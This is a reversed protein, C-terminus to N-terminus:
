ALMTYSGGAKFNVLELKAQHGFCRSPPGDPLAGPLLLQLSLGLHHLGLPTWIVLATGSVVFYCLTRLYYLRPHGISTYVMM